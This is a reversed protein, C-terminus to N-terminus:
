SGTPPTIILPSWTNGVIVGCMEPNPVVTSGSFSKKSLRSSIFVNSPTRV